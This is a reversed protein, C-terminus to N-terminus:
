RRDSALEAVVVKFADRARPRVSRQLFRITDSWLFALRRRIRNSGVHATRDPTENLLLKSRNERMREAADVV